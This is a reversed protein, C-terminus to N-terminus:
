GFSKIENWLEKIPRKLGRCIYVQTDAEYPMCYECPIVEFMEVSAFMDRMEGLEKALIIVVDGTYDRPGWLWYNNHNSISKPLGYKGGFFDIAGARGYNFTFIACAAQEDPKLSQFARAVAQVKEEWGFMDAYHQPLKGMQHREEPRSEIGLARSYGIFTEPPLVTLAFPASGIGGLLLTAVCTPRLWEWRRREVFQQIAIAGGAFLMPYIPSLYYPKGHQVIFLTFLIVYCWAIFRYPKAAAAFFFFLLGTGWVPFTLPSMFMIQRVLFEVPTSIINKNETANKIFEATPFSHAVQWLIHPLFILAAIGTGLWFWKTLLHKREATLLVGAVLGVCLFIMSYKNQAGLGAVIGFVLWGKPNGDRLIGVVIYIAITWFLLDFANMSYFDLMGLYQPATLACLAALLQAFRDGGLLGAIRGTLFVVVGAAIAPLLRLAVLSDGFLFRSVALLLISLPPQDVYGFALHESCAIYYFEDRFYGYATTAAVVVHILFAAVGLLVLMGSNNKLLDASLIRKNM